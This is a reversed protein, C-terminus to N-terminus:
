IDLNKVAKAHTTIFRKRPAVEDGMLTQFIESVREADKITVQLMVRASPDMTTEWLQEANMEGLGKYRQIGYKVGDINGGTTEEVTSVEEAPENATEGKAKKSAAKKDKAGAILEKLVKDREDDSFAYKSERGVQVKFM